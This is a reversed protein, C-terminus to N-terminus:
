IETCPLTNIPNFGEPAESFRDISAIGCIDVGLDYLIKKVNISHM